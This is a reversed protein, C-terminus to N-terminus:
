EIYEAYFHEINQIIKPHETDVRFGNKEYYSKTQSQIESYIREDCKREQKITQILLQILHSGLGASRESEIIAVRQIKYGKENLNSRISGVPRGDSRLVYQRVVGGTTDLVAAKDIGQGEVFVSILVDQVEKLTKEDTAEVFEIKSEM